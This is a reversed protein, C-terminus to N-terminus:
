FQKSKIPRMLCSPCTLNSADKRVKWSAAHRNSLSLQFCLSLSAMRRHKSYCTELRKKPSNDRPFAPFGFKVPFDPLGLQPQETKGRLVVMKTLDGKKIRAKVRVGTMGHASLCKLKKLLQLKNLFNSVLKGDLLHHPCYACMLLVYMIM